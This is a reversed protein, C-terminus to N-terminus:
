SHLIAGIAGVRDAHRVMGSLGKSEKSDKSNKRHRTGLISPSWGITEHSMKAFDLDM